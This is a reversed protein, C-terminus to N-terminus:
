PIGDPDLNQLSFDAFMFDVEQRVETQLETGIYVAYTLYKTEDTQYNAIDDEWQIFGIDHASVQLQLNKIPEYTAGFDFSFVTNNRM